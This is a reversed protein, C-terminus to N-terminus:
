FYMVKKCKSMENRAVIKCDNRQENELFYKSIFLYKFSYHNLFANSDGTSAPKYLLDLPSNFTSILLVVDYVPFAESIHLIERGASNVVQTNGLLLHRGTPLM